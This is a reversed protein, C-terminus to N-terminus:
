YCSVSECLFQDDPITSNPPRYFVNCHLSFSSSKLKLVSTDINPYEFRLPMVSFRSLLESEIYICLVREGVRKMRGPRKMTGGNNEVSYDPIRSILYTKPVFIFSPDIEDLTLVFDDFKTMLSTLNTDLLQSDSFGHVLKKSAYILSKGPIRSYMYKHSQAWGLGLSEAIRKEFEVVM